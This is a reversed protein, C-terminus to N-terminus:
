ATSTTAALAMIRNCLDPFPIGAAALYPVLYGGVYGSAGFVLWPRASGARRYGEAFEPVDITGM